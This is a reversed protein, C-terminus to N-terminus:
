LVEGLPPFLPAVSVDTGAPLPHGARELAASLRSPLKQEVFSHRGPIARTTIRVVRAYTPLTDLAVEPREAFVTFEREFDELASRVLSVPDEPADQSVPVTIVHAVMPETYRNASTIRGNPLFRLQGDPQRLRTMRLGVQEVRGFVGNLEVLDGVAYQGEAVIFFGSIVDRVLNQAGFGVALGLIGAGAIIPTVDITLASLITVAAVFVIVYKAVNRALLFLTAVRQRQEEEKLGTRAREIAAATAFHVLRSAVWAVLVTGLIRASVEPTVVGSLGELRMAALGALFIVVALVMNKILRGIGLVRQRIEESSARAGARRSVVDIMRGLVVYALWAAFVIVILDFAISIAGGPLLDRVPKLWSM